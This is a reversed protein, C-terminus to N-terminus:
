PCDTSRCGHRRRHADFEARSILVVRHDAPRYPAPRTALEDRRAALQAARLSGCLEVYDHSGDPWHRRVAYGTSDGSVVTL